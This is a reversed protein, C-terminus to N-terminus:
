RRSPSIRRPNSKPNIWLRGPTAEAGLVILRVTEEVQSTAVMALRRFLGTSDPDTQEAMGGLIIKRNSIKITGTAMIM